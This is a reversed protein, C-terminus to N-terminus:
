KGQQAALEPNLTYQGTISAQALIHGQIAALAQAATFTGALPVHAIDLAYLTFVYHHMISDNWPPCPGDYGFYDGCMDPDAAFWGTYDNLGQRAGRLADPGAKGRATVGDSVEGEAIALMAPPLDLLTWHFFDVRPLGAPVRRGEQNVNEASSPVDPDHCIIALSRTGAPLERWGLHPNKNASLRVHTDPDMVCFAFKAPIAGGDKFSDSWFQM